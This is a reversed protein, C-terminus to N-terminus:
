KVCEGEKVKGWGFLSKQFLFGAASVVEFWRISTSVGAFAFLFDSWSHSMCYTHTHTHANQTCNHIFSGLLVEISKECEGEWRIAVGKSNWLQQVEGCNSQVIVLKVVQQM